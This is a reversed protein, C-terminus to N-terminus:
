WLEAPRSMPLGRKGSTDFYGFARTLDTALLGPAIANVMIGRHAVEVALVLLLRCRDLCRSKAWDM